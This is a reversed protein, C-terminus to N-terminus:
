PWEDRPYPEGSAPATAVYSLAASGGELEIAQRRYGPGEFEDLRALDGTAIRYLEGLVAHQGPVLAPYGDIVRLAFAPRTQTHGVFRASGLEAHNVQGRKLSGYVFLLQDPADAAM